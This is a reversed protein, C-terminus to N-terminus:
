SADLLQQIEHAQLAQLHWVQQGGCWCAPVVLVLLNPSWYVRLHVGFNDRYQPDAVWGIANNRCPFNVLRLPSSYFACCLPTTDTKDRQKADFDWHKPL